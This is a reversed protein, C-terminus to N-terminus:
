FLDTDKCLVPINNISNELATRRQQASQDDFCEFPSEKPVPSEIVAPIHLSLTEYLWLFDSYRRLVSFFAQSIGFFHGPRTFLESCGIRLRLRVFCAKTHLTSM